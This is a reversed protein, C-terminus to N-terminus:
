DLHPYIISGALRNISLSLNGFIFNQFGKTLDPSRVWSGQTVDYKCYHTVEEKAGWALKFRRLGANNLATRGFHLSECGMEVLRRIAEWVVLNNGRLNSLSGESAAFKYVAHKGARLFVAAAASVKDRRAIAVFGNGKAILEKHIERFFSFPQPPLGHRKRTLAHLRYYASIGEMSHDIM